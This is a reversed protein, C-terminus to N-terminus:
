TYGMERTALDVAQSVVTYKEPDASASDPHYKALLKRRAQSIDEVTPAFGNPFGLVSRWSAQKPPAPLAKFGQLSARVLALTGHRLETRRAEVIHHIAQLNAEVSKYRDVAICVSLGDWTFWISVGPDEPRNAGLTVNSSLIPPSIKKGSDRAFRSLSGMVNETAKHLTTKFTGKERLRSRPFGEPWSLPYAQATETM